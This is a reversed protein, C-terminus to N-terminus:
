MFKRRKFAAVDAATLDFWEGNKRKDKFRNHWYGEIGTPDDTRIAHVTTLKEPLQIGLEYERRGAANSHGIKYFRGSKMLYVFGIVIEDALPKKEDCEEGNVTSRYEECWRAVDQYPERVRCFAVVDQILKQKGRFARPNPFDRDKRRKMQLDAYVPLRGLELALSAYRELLLERDFATNFRNAVYGVEEVADGWKRWHIGKWDSVRIGTESSFAEQGLPKGGNKIATRKIEELIHAKDILSPRAISMSV